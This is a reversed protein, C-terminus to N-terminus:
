ERCAHLGGPCLDTHALFVAFSGAEAGADIIQLPRTFM